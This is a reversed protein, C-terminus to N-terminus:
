MKNDNGEPDSVDSLTEAPKWHGGGGPGNLNQNLYFGHIWVLALSLVEEEEELETVAAVKEGDKTGITEEM